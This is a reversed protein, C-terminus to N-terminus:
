STVLRFYFATRWQGTETATDRLRSGRNFTTTPGPRNRSSIDGGSRTLQADPARIADLAIRIVSSPRLKPCREDLQTRQFLSKVVVCEIVM